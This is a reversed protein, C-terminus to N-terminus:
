FLSKNIRIIIIEFNNVAFGTYVPIVPYLCLASVPLAARPPAAVVKSRRSCLTRECAQATAQCRCTDQYSEWRDEVFPQNNQARSCPM